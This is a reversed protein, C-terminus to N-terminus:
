DPEDVWDFIKEIEDTQRTESKRYISIEREILGDLKLMTMRDLQETFGSQLYNWKAWNGLLWRYWIVSARMTNTYGWM